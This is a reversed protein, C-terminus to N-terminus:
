DILKEYKNQIITIEEKLSVRLKQNEDRLRVIKMESDKNLNLQKQMIQITAKLRQNEILLDAPDVM